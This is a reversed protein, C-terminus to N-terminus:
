RRAIHFFPETPNDIDHGWALVGSRFLDNWCTLLTQQDELNDDAIKLKKAAERLVVYVQSYGPGKALCEKAVEMLEQKMDTAIM